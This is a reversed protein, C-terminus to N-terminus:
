SPQGAVISLRQLIRQRNESSRCFQGIEESCTITVVYWLGFLQKSEAFEFVLDPKNEEDAASAENQPASSVPAPENSADLALDGEISVQICGFNYNLTYFVNGGRVPDAIADLKACGPWTFNANGGTEVFTSAVAPPAQDANFGPLLGLVPFPLTALSAVPSSAVAAAAEPPAALRQVYQVAQPAHWDPVALRTDAAAFSALGFFILGALGHKISVQM